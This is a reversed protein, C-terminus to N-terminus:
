LYNGAAQSDLMKWYVPGHLLNDASFRNIPAWPINVPYVESAYDAFVSNEESPEHDSTNDAVSEDGSSEDGSSQDGSFEDGSSEDGSSEDGSSEDGSSEDLEPRTVSPLNSVRLDKSNRVEKDLNELRRDDIGNALILSVM